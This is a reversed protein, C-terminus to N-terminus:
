EDRRLLANVTRLLEMAVALRAGQENNPFEPGGSTVKGTRARRPTAAMPPMRDPIMDLPFHQGASEGVAHPTGAGMDVGNGAHAGSAGNRAAKTKPKKKKANAMAKRTAIYRARREDTWASKGARKLAAMRKEYNARQAPTWKSM